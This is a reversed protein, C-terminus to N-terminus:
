GPLESSEPMVARAVAMRQWQGGSLEAGHEFTRGLPTNGAEPLSALVQDAGSRRAAAAVAADDEIRPLDGVGIAERALLEFRCFDQFGVALEARWQDPDFEAIDEM